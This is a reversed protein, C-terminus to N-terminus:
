PRVGLQFSELPPIKGQIAERTVLRYRKARALPAFFRQISGDLIAWFVSLTAKDAPTEPRNQGTHGSRRMAPFPNGAIPIIRTSTGSAISSQDM